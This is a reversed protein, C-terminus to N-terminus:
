AWKPKHQLYRIYSKVLEPDFQDLSTVGEREAWQVFTTLNKRYGNITKPKYGRVKLDDLYASRLQALTPVPAKGM